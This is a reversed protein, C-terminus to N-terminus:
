IMRLKYEYEDKGNKINRVIRLVKNGGGKNFGEVERTLVEHKYHFEDGVCYMITANDSYYDQFIWITDAKDNENNNDISLRICKSSEETRGVWPVPINFDGTESNQLVYSQNDKEGVVIVIDNTVRNIIRTISSWAM